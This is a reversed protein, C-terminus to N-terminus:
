CIDCILSKFPIFYGLYKFYRSGSGLMFILHGLFPIASTVIPPEQAHIKRTELAKLLVYVLLAFAVSLFYPSSPLQLLDM